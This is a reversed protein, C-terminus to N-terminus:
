SRRGSPHEEAARRAAEKRRKAGGASRTKAGSGRRRSRPEPHTALIAALRKVLRPRESALNRTEVPDEIYDYLEYEAGDAADDWRKWEVLRYRKTRIARGLRNGGRPFCHYAHDRVTRGPNRLIPVLSKGDIPQPGTPEPLGALEAVTPYIDVTEVLASSSTGPIGVAPAVIIIPIRNAQEYNTHKTWAGLDGLHYGHDGWLVVITSKALELRDLEDLVLGVQADMYSLAAYYGHILTRQLDEDLPPENPVPKYQNLEGLTKGAYRPAAIPPKTHKALPLKRPDYLDWYGTESQLELLKQKENQCNNLFNKVPKFNYGLLSESFMSGIGDFYKDMPDAKEPDMFGEVRKELRAIIDEPLEQTDM